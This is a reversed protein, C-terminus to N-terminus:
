KVNSIRNQIADLRATLEKLQGALTDSLQRMTDALKASNASVEQSAAALKRIGNANEVIMEHDLRGLQATQLMLKRAAALDAALSDLAKQMEERATAISTQTESLKRLEADLAALTTRLTEQQQLFSSTVSEPAKPVDARHVFRVVPPVSVRGTPSGSPSAIYRAWAEAPSDGPLVVLHGDGADLFALAGVNGSQRITDQIAASHPALARDHNKIAVAQEKPVLPHSACGVVVAVSLVLVLQRM